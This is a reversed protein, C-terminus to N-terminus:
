PHAVVVLTPARRLVCSLALRLNEPDLAAFSEDLVVLEAGQLLARAIYLRSREGHSLQWGSEGVMQWFGAPMRTLLEGLGLEMCIAEAEAVDSPRPPWSRGMLLNFAFSETLVHNEHFQPASAVRRRWGEDGLTQRDLGDLLLLGAQPSRMGTLLSALTSKGGGSPGKLLVRDGAHVSLRCGRLVPEDRGDYRFALDHAEILARGAARELTGTGTAFAPLGKSERRSAARFFPEVQQWAIGAAALTALSEALKDLARYVLLVGGLSVALSQPSSHGSVFAPALGCVGALLWGRPLVMLLTADRDRLRSLKLYSELARDEEDHWRKSAEQVLRTRYGTMVEVLHHTIELRSATWPGRSRFFSWSVAFTLVAWVIFLLLHLRGAAGFGLVFAGCALEILSVLALFGGSLSLTEVAESEFVRGLLHGVGERRMEEPNMRLAGYLLRQKLLGGAGISFLASSWIYLLRFPIMTILLLAWAILWDRESRWRFAARGVLWWSMLWLGYQITYAAAMILLRRPLRADRAQRLVGEGPSLRLVWCQGALTTGLRQRLIAARARAERRGHIGLERLLDSVEKAQAAEVASRLATHIISPSVRRVEADPTLVSAARNRSELLVLFRSEGEVTIRFLSPASTRVMQEVSAYRVERPEAELGLWDASATVWRNLADGEENIVPPPPPQALAAPQALGSERALLDLAEGLRNIPWCLQQIDHESM